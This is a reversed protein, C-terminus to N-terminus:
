RVRRRNAPKSIASRRDRAKILFYYILAGIINLFIIVLVWILKEVNDDFKRTVADILMWLWFLLALLWIVTIVIGAIGFGIGFPWFWGGMMNSGGWGMMGGGDWDIMNALATFSLLLLLVPLIIEYKKM